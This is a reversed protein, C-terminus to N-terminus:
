RAIGDLPFTALVRYGGAPLPGAQLTGRHLAVRERMGILGHGGSTTQSSTSGDDVVEISLGAPEARVAVEVHEADSHKLVNTLAEQLIRYASVELSAPLNRPAGSVSLRVDIGTDAFADLLADLQDLRPQPGVDDPDGERRLFGLMRQLEVVAHRSTQEILALAEAARSPQRDMVRRAAGAQVGMVSVHHAVIDHLERAIRVREDFVARRAKEEREIELQAAREVLAREQQRRQAVVDGFVWAAIVFAVNFLVFFVARLLLSGQALAGGAMVLRFALFGLAAVVNVARVWDRWRGSGYAGASYLALWWVVVSVTLDPVDTLRYPFFVATVVLLVTLPFRRRWALPLVLALTLLTWEATPPPRYGPPATDIGVRVAMVGLGALLVAAAADM